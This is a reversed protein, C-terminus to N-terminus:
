FSLRGFHAMSFTYIYIQIIKKTHTRGCIDTKVWGGGRMSPNGDMQLKLKNKEVKTCGTQISTM